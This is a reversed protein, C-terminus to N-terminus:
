FQSTITTTSSPVNREGHPLSPSPSSSSPRSCPHIGYVYQGVLEQLQSRFSLIRSEPIKRVHPLLSKFFLMHEDEELVSRTPELYAVNQREIELLSEPFDNSELEREPTELLSDSTESKFLAVDIDEIDIKEDPEEKVEVNDESEMSLQTDEEAIGQVLSSLNGSHTRPKAHDKLFTLKQFHPWKSVSVNDTSDDTQPLQQKRLEYYFQDRLYKWKKKLKDKNEGLEASIDNWLKDNVIRNRYLEQRSDWIWPRKFVANILGDIYMDDSTSIKNNKNNTSEQKEDINQPIGPGESRRTDIIRRRCQLIDKKALNQRIEPPAFLIERQVLKAPRASKNDLAKRKVNNAIFDRELNGIPQHNHEIDPGRVMNSGSSDTLIAVKCRNSTCRWRQGEAVIRDKRFRYNNIVRLEKGKASYMSLM